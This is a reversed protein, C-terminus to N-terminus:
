KSSEVDSFLGGGSPKKCVAYHSQEVVSLASDLHSAVPKGNATKATGGSRRSVDHVRAKRLRGKRVKKHVGINVGFLGVNAITNTVALSIVLRRSSFYSRLVLISTNALCSIVFVSALDVAVGV